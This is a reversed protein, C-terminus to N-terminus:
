IESTIVLTRSVKGSVIEARVEFAVRLHEYSLTFNLGDSVTYEALTLDPYYPGHAGPNVVPSQPSGIFYMWSWGEWVGGTIDTHDGNWIWSYSGNDYYDDDTSNHFSFGELFTATSDTDVNTIYSSPTATGTEDVAFIVDMLSSGAAIPVALPSAFWTPESVGPLAAYPPIVDPVPPNTIRNWSALYLNATVDNEARTRAAAAHRKSAGRFGSLNLNNFNTRKLTKAV